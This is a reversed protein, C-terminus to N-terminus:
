SSIDIQGQRGCLLKLDVLERIIPLYLGRNRRSRQNDDLERIYLKPLMTQQLASPENSDNPRISSWTFIFTKRGDLRRTPFFASRSLTETDLEVTDSGNDLNSSNMGAM